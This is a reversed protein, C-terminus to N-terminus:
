RDKCRCDNTQRISRLAPRHRPGVERRPPVSLQKGVLTPPNKDDTEEYSLSPCGAQIAKVTQDIAQARAKAPEPANETEGKLLEPSQEAAIDWAQAFSLGPRAKQVEPVKAACDAARQMSRLRKGQNDPEAFQDTWAKVEPPLKMTREVLAIGVADDFVWGFQHVAASGPEPEFGRALM